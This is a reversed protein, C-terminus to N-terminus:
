FFHFCRYTIDTKFYFGLHEALHFWYIMIWSVSLIESSPRWKLICNQIIQEARFDTFILSQSVRDSDFNYLSLVSAPLILLLRYNPSILRYVVNLYLLFSIFFMNIVRCKLLVLSIQISGPFFSVSFKFLNIKYKQFLM